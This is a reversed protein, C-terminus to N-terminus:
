TPTTDSARAVETALVNSQLASAALHCSNPLHFTGTVLFCAAIKRIGKKTVGTVHRNNTYHNVTKM